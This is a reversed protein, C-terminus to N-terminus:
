KRRVMPVRVHRVGHLRALAELDGPLDTETVLIALTDAEARAEDAAKVARYKICQFVGRKLDAHNSDRSKVEIVVSKGPAFYVVDVRDASPLEFETKAGLVRLRPTIRGPNDKVWLRLARHNPGEGVGRGGLQGDAEAPPEHFPGDATLRAKFVDRYVGAWDAFQYAEEIARDAFQKWDEWRRDRNSKDELWLRRFRRAMYWSVGEGPYLDDQRVLLANLLPADPREKHIRDMLAGAVFGLRTSFIKGFGHELTLYRSAEGYTLTTERHAADILWRTVPQVAYATLNEDTGRLTQVSQAM